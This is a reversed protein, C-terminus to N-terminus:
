RRGAEDASPWRRPSTPASTRRMGAGPTCVGPSSRPREVTGHFQVDPPAASSYGLAVTVSHGQSARIRTGSDDFAFRQKENTVVVYDLERRSLRLGQRALAALLEGVDVWGAHDLNLGVSDPRHRLVFSLRKSVRVVDV